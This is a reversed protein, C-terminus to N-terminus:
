SENVMKYNEVIEEMTPIKGQDKPVFDKRERNKGGDTFANLTVYGNCLDNISFSEDSLKIMYDELENFDSMLYGHFEDYSFKYNFGYLESYYVPLFYDYSVEWTNNIVEVYFVEDMYSSEVEYYCGIISQDVIGSYEMHYYVNKIEYNDDGYKEILYNKAIASGKFFLIKESVFPFVYLILVTSVLVAAGEKALRIFHMKSNENETKRLNKKNKCWICLGVILLIVNVFFLFFCVVLCLLGDSLSLANAAMYFCAYIDCFFVVLNVTFFRLITAKVKYKCFMRMSIIQYIDFFLFTWFFLISVNYVDM